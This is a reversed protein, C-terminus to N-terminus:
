GGPAASKLAGPTTRPPGSARAATAALVHLRGVGFIGHDLPTVDHRASLTQLLRERGAPTNGYSTVSVYIAGPALRTTWHETHELLWTEPAAFVAQDDALHWAVCPLVGRAV